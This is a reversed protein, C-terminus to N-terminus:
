KIHQLGGMCILCKAEPWEAPHMKWLHGCPQQQNTAEKGCKPCTTVRTDLRTDATAHESRGVEKCLQDWGRRGEARASTTDANVIDVSKLLNRLFARRESQWSFDSEAVERLCGMMVRRALTEKPMRWVHGIYRLARGEVKQRM